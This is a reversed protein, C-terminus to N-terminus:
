GDRTAFYPMCKSPDEKCTTSKGGYLFQGFAITDPASTTVPMTYFQRQSNELEYVDDLNKFLGKNFNKRMANAMSPDDYSCAPPRAENDLLAGVTANSFPNNTSSKSCSKTDRKVSYPRINGYAENSKPTKRGLAYALSIIAIIALGLVAYLYNQRILAVAFSCYLVLRIMANVRESDSQDRTPIIESPRKFIVSLDQFWIPDQNLTQTRM